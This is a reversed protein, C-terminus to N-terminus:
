KWGAINYGRHSLATNFASKESEKDLRLEYNKLAYIYKDLDDWSLVIKQTTTEGPAASLSQSVPWTGLANSWVLEVGTGDPSNRWGVNIPANAKNWEDYPIMTEADLVGGQKMSVLTMKPLEDNIFTKLGDDYDEKVFVVTRGKDDKYSSTEILVGQDSVIYKDEVLKKFADKAAKTNKTRIYDDVAYNVLLGIWGEVFGSANNNYQTLALRIPEFSTKIDEKISKVVAADNPSLKSEDHKSLVGNQLVTEALPTNLYQMASDWAPDLHKSQVMQDLLIPFYEEGHEQKLFMFYNIAAQADPFSKIQKAYLAAQDDSVIKLNWSEVGWKEQYEILEKYAEQRIAFAEEGGEEGPEVNTTLKKYLEPQYEKAWAVPNESIMKQFIDINQSVAQAITSDRKDGKKAIENLELKIKNQGELDTTYAENSKNYITLAMKKDRRYDDVIKSKEGHMAILNTEVDEFQVEGTTMISNLNKQRQSDIENAFAGDVATKKSDLQKILSQQTDIDLHSQFNGVSGDLWKKAMAIEGPDGRQIISEVTDKIMKNLIAKKKKRLKSINFKGAYGEIEKTKPNDYTSFLAEIEKMKELILHPKEITVQTAAKAAEDIGNLDAAVSASAEYKTANAFEVTLLANHNIEWNAVAWKNPANKKIEDSKKKFADIILKTHGAADLNPNSKKIKETETVMFMQIESKSKSLWVKGEREEKIKGYKDVTAATKFLATDINTRQSAVQIEGGSYGSFADTVGTRKKFESDFTPIKVM